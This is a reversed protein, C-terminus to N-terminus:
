QWTSGFGTCGSLTRTNDQTLTILCGSVKGATGTAKVQYGKGDSNRTYTYTFSDSQSPQWSSSSCSTTGNYAVCKTQDTTTAPGAPYSLQKQYVNELSLSLAVLDAQAAKLKSKTIYTDYAPFAIAALIGIITIAILLELLTFGHATRRTQLQKM